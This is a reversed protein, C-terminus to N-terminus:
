VSQMASAILRIATDKNEKSILVDAYQKSPTVYQQCMPKVTDLYQSVSSEFSRGRKRMDRRARRIFCIDDDAEVFVRIDFLQRMAEDVFTLIGEVIIIEKPGQRKGEGKRVHHEFDYEPMMVERGQGLEHLHEILLETDLADPHDFNIAHRQELPLSSRDHYYDDHHILLVQEDGLLELLMRAVRTKGSGSAGAIGVILPSDDKRM